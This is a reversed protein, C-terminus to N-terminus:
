FYSKPLYFDSEVITVIYLFIVNLYGHEGINGTQGHLQLTACITNMDLVSSIFKSLTYYPEPEM